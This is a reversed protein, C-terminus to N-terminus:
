PRTMSWATARCTSLWRWVGGVCVHHGAELTWRWALGTFTRNLLRVVVAMVVSLTLAQRQTSDRSQCFQVFRWEGTYMNCVTALWLSAPERLWSRVYGVTSGCKTRCSFQFRLHCILLAPCPSALLSPLAPSSEQCVLLKDKLDGSGM